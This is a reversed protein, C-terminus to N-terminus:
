LRSLAARRMYMLDEKIWGDWWVRRKELGILYGSINIQAMGGIFELEDQLDWAKKKM